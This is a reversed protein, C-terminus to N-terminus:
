GCWVACRVERARRSAICAGPHQPQGGLGVGTSARVPCLEAPQTTLHGLACALGLAPTNRLLKAPLSCLLSAPGLRGASLEAHATPHVLVCTLERSAGATVQFGTAYGVLLVRRAVVESQPCETCARYELTRFAVFDVREREGDAGLSALGASLNTVVGRASSALAQLSWDAM